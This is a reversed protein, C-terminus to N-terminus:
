RDRKYRKKYRDKERKYYQKKYRKIYEEKSLRERMEKRKEKDTKISQNEQKLIRHYYNTNTPKEILDIQLDNFLSM